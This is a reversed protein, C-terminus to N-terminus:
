ENNSNWKGDQTKEEKEIGKQPKSNLFVKVDRVTSEPFVRAQGATGVPVIALKRIAYSVKDRDIHLQKAIEGTTLLKL